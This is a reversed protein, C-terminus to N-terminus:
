QAGRPVMETPAVTSGLHASQTHAQHEGRGAVITGRVGVTCSSSFDSGDNEEKIKNEDWAKKVGNRACLEM